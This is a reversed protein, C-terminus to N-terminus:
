LIKKVFPIKRLLWTVGFSLLFVAVALVAVSALGLGYPDFPHKLAIYKLPMLHILYIGFSNQDIIELIKHKKTKRLLLFVGAAGVITLIFSYDNVLAKLTTAFETKNTLYFFTVYSMGVVFVPVLILGKRREKSTPDALLGGLLLYLPYITYVPFYFGSEISFIATVAPLISLFIVMVTLVGQQAKRDAYRVFPRLIPILLYLAIMTYLYWMHSWLGEGTLISRLLDPITKATYKSFGFFIDYAKFLVSFIVLAALMRPIYKRFVKKYTVDHKPDLLLAGTVMIFCPVSWFMLNRIIVSSTYLWGKVSFSGFCTYFTHLVVVAMCSIARINSLGHDRNETNKEKQSM